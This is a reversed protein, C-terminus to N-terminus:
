KGTKSTLHWLGCIDCQYARITKSTKNEAIYQIMDLAEERTHYITKRCAPDLPSVNKKGQLNYKSM